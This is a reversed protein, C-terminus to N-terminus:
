RVTPQYRLTLAWTRGPALYDRVPQYQTNGLNNVKAEVRWDPLFAWRVVADFLNYAPLNSGGDPRSGVRLGHLGSSWPGQTWDVRFGGQHAARRALRQGSDADTADLLDLHAGVMWAGLRQTGALTAGQLRARQTNGACGFSYAPDAPCLTALPQYGILDRVTMRYVTASAEQNQDRWTTGLEINRSREPRLTSVGYGPFYLDNFSPARFATGLSARVSWSASLATRWGLRWTAVSGLTSVHDWRADGQLTHSGETAVMGVTAAHQRRSETQLFSTSAVAETMRELAALWQLSASPQLRHQWSLQDRRTVFRSQFAGGTTLDDRSQAWRATQTWTASLPGRYDLAATSLSQRNRFDASADPAFTVPDFDAGDYQANLKSALLSVGIRHGPVPTYGVRGQAHRRTHGDRDPNHQGFADGPVVANIGHSRETSAGAAYDWVGAAAPTSAGVQGSVQASMARTGLSGVLAHGAVQAAASSGKKTTILVVGGLADSGWLSSGAGRLVEIREISALPLSEFGFQGLSASGVRVGDILVVLGSAGMGRALLAASQGPGGNRSLQLGAERRLVDELSDALSDRLKAADIVVVDSTAWAVPASERSGVVQISQPAPTGTSQALASVPMLALAVAQGVARLSFLPRVRAGGLSIFPHLQFSMHQVTSQVADSSLAHVGRGRPRM